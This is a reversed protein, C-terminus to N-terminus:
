KSVTSYWKDKAVPGEGLDSAWTQKSWLGDGTTLSFVAYRHVSNPSSSQDASWYERGRLYDAAYEDWSSYSAKLFRAVPMILDWAEQETIYGCVFAWRCLNIYRGYDWATIDAVGRQTANLNRAAVMCKYRAESDEIKSIFDMLKDQPYSRLEQQVKWMEQRHGGQEIWALTEYFTQRSKIGWWKALSRQQSEKRLDSIDGNSLRDVPERNVVSLVAGFLLARAHPGVESGPVQATLLAAGQVLLIFLYLIKM